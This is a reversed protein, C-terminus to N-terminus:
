QKTKKSRILGCARTSENEMWGRWGDREENEGKRRIRKFYDLIAELSGLSRENGPFESEEFEGLEVGGFSPRTGTLASGESVGVVVGGTGVKLWGCRDLEAAVAVRRCGRGGFGARALFPVDSDRGIDESADVGETSSSLLATRWARCCGCGGGGGEAVVVVAVVIPFM